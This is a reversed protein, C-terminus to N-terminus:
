DKVILEDLPSKIYGKEQLSEYSTKENEKGKETILRLDEPDEPIKSSSANVAPVMITTGKRLALVLAENAATKIDLKKGGAKMIEQAAQKAIEPDIGVGNLRVIIDEATANNQDDVPAETSVADKKQKSAKKSKLRSLYKKYYEEMDVPRIDDYKAIEEPDGSRLADLMPRVLQLSEKAVSRISEPTVVDENLAIARWQALVYLKVVIDVIGQSEDYIVEKIEETLPSEERTWQYAWLGKVLLDFDEGKELVDWAMDGQGTGRRAQRFDGRVVSLAKTTGILVVPVKITNVLTVFFSLMDESGGSKATSLHQIEDIVLVGLCHASALQAMKSLLTEVPYRPNGYKRFYSTNILSDIAEFFSFCLGKLSGKLPCNLKLWTIQYLSLNVGKYNSHVIVRPYLSLVREVSTTKGMGSIGIITFGSSTGPGMNDELLYGGSKIARYSEQLRAAYQPELPNRALYGQRILRSFRQELDIHRNLPEFYTYLRQACHYRFHADLEREHPDYSPLRTLKDIVEDESFIPPLAEILPNGRYDTLVQDTYIAEVINGGGSTEFEYEEDM